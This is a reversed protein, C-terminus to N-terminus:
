SLTRGENLAALAAAVGAQASRQVAAAAESAGGGGSGDMDVDGGSDVPKARKASREAAAAQNAALAQSVALLVEPPLNLDKLSAATNGLAVVLGGATDRGGDATGEMAGASAAAQEGRLVAAAQAADAERAARELEATAGRLKAIAGQLQEAEAMARVYQIQKKSIALRNDALAQNAKRAKEALDKVDATSPGDAQAAALRATAAKALQAAEVAVQQGVPAGDEGVKAM